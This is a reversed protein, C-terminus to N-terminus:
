PYLAPPYVYPCPFQKVKYSPAVHIELTPYTEVGPARFHEALRRIYYGRFSRQSYPRLNVPPQSEPPGYTQQDQARAHAVAGIILMLAALWKARLSVLLSRKSVLGRSDKPM